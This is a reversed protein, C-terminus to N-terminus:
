AKSMIEWEEGGPESGREVWSMDLSWDDSAREWANHGPRRVGPMDTHSGGRRGSLDNHNAVGYRM